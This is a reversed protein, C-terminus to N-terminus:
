KSAVVNVICKATVAPHLKIKVNYKGVSKINDNLEVKKKDITIGLKCIEDAIEKSTVSGFLKGNDGIKVAITVEKGNILKANELAEQKIQEQKYDYAQQKSKAVSVNATSGVVAFGNPILYNTAYGDSVNVVEGAKGKGKVDKLLVVKM